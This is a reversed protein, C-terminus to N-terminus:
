TDWLRPYRNAEAVFLALGRIVARRPDPRSMVATALEDCLAARLPPLYAGGGVVVIGEDLVGKGIRLSARQAATRVAGVVASIPRHLEAALEAPSIGIDSRTDRGLELDTTSRLARWAAPPQALRHHRRSLYSLVAREIERCGVPCSVADIVRGDALVAAESGHVGVDLVVRPSTGTIDLDTGAAAALPADM